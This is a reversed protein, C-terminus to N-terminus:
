RFANWEESSYQGTLGEVEHEAFDPWPTEVVGANLVEALRGVFGAEFADWDFAASVASRAVSGQFLLGERARKQAAGAVKAGTDGRVVDHRESRAFCVTPGTAVGDGGDDAERKLVVDEGLSVMVSAICEHVIRYSEPAAAECLPHVRPIVLAYTWDDRHDVVGGGTARRCVDFPGEAAPPLQARVYEIKQSYGFTFSPLRWEYHRFRAREPAPHRKLLLFDAAMNEAAGGTRVPLVDFFNSM